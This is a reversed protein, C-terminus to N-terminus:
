KYRELLDRHRQEVDKLHQDLKKLDEPKNTKKWAEWLEYAQSSQALNHNKYKVTKM